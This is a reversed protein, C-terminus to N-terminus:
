FIFATASGVGALCILIIGAKAFGITHLIFGLFIFSALFLESLVLRDWNQVTLYFLLDRGLLGFGDAVFGLQM